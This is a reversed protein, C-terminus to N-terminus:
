DEQQKGLDIAKNMDARAEEHQGLARKATGRNIYADAYNPQLSIAKDHDEIADQHNGLENKSVGRHTYAAASNPNIRIAEDYDIIADRHKGLSRKANGRNIYAETFDPKLRVAETYDVIANTPEGLKSKVIGRSNYAQAYDPNLRIAEDYASLAQDTENQESHLFGISFFARAVLENDVGKATNAISRWKEIADTVNGDRQMKYAEIIARDELSLEPNRLIDQISTNLTEIKNPNSFDKSTLKSVIAQIRANNQQIEKQNKTIETASTKAAAAHQEAEKVHNLMQSQLDGFKMYILYAAVGTVLPILLTFFVLVISTFSLWRNISRSREDLYASRLENFQQQISTNVEPEDNTENAAEDLSPNPTQASEDNAKDNM